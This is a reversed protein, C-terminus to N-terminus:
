ITVACRATLFGLLPEAAGSFGVDADDAWVANGSGVGGASGSARGLRAGRCINIQL